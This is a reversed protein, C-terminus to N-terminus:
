RVPSCSGREGLPAVQDADETGCFWARDVDPWDGVGTNVPTDEFMATKEKVSVSGGKGM